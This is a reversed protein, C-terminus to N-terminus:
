SADDRAVPAHLPALIHSRATKHSMNENLDRPQSICSSMSYPTHMRLELFRSCYDGCNRRRTPHMASLAGFFSCSEVFSADRKSIKLVSREIRRALWTKRRGRACRLFVNMSTPCM